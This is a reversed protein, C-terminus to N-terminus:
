NVAAAFDDLQVAIANVARAVLGGVDSKQSLHTLLQVSAFLRAAATLQGAQVLDSMGAHRWYSRQCEAVLDADWDGQTLVALDLVGPGVGVSEWDVVVVGSELVLVNAPYLEGHIVTRPARSLLDVVAAMSGDFGAIVSGICPSIGGLHTIQAAWSTFYHRDFLNLNHPITGRREAHFRGLAECAWLLGDPFPSRHIRYGDVYELVLCTSEPGQFSGHCRPTALHPDPLLREYVLSEYTVGRRHGTIADSYGSGFKCLLELRGAPTSVSVRETSFTSSYRNHARSELALENHVLSRLGTILTEDSPPSRM